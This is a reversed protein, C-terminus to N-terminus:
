AQQLGSAPPLTNRRNWLVIPVCLFMALAGYLLSVFLMGDGLPDARGTVAPFLSAKLLLALNTNRITVEVAIALREAPQSRGAVTILLAACQITFAFLLIVGLRGLTSEDVELRGATASGVVILGICFFSARIAYRSFRERFEPWRAGITMGLISRAAEEAQIPSRASM